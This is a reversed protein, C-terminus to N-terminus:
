LGRGPKWTGEFGGIKGSPKERYQPLEAWRPRATERVQTPETKEWSGAPLHSSWGPGAGM